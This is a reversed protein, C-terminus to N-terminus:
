DYLLLTAGAIGLLQRGLAQMEVLLLEFATCLLTGQCDCNAQGGFRGAFFRLVLWGESCQICRSGASGLWGIQAHCWRWLAPTIEELELGDRDAVMLFLLLVRV